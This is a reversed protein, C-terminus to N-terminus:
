MVAIKKAAPLKLGLRQLLIAQHETPKNVWRKRITIGKRAPRVVDVQTITAIEDFVRRPEDGLGARVGAETVKTRKVCILRIPERAISPCAQHCSQRSNRDHEFGLLTM